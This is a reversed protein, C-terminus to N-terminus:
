TSSYCLVLRVGKSSEAWKHEIYEEQVDLDVAEAIAKVRWIAEEVIAAEEM